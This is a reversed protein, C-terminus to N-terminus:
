RIKCVSNHTLVAIFIRSTRLTHLGSAHRHRFIHLGDPFDLGADRLSRGIVPGLPFSLPPMRDGARVLPYGEVAPAGVEASLVISKRPFEWQTPKKGYTSTVSPLPQSRFVLM